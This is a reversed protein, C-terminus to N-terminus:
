FPVRSSMCVLQTSSCASVVIIKAVGQAHLNDEQFGRELSFLGAQCRAELFLKLRPMVVEKEIDRRGASITISVSIENSEEAGDHVTPCTKRIRCPGAIPLQQPAGLPVPPDRPARDSVDLWEIRAKSRSSPNTPPRGSKARKQVPAKTRPRGRGKKGKKRAPADSDTDDADTGSERSSPPQAPRTSPGAEDDDSTMSVPSPIKLHRVDIDEDHDLSTRKPAKGKNSAHGAAGHHSCDSQEEDSSHTSSPTDPPPNSAEPHNRRFHRLADDLAEREEDNLGKKKGMLPNKSASASHDEKWVGPVLHLVHM